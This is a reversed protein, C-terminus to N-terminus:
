GTFTIEIVRGEAIGIRAELEDAASLVPTGVVEVMPTELRM